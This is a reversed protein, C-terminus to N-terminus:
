EYPLKQWLQWAAEMHKALKPFLVAFLRQRDKASLQALRDAAQENAKMRREWSKFSKGEADRDFAVLFGVAKLDGPLKAIAAHRSKEWDKVKFAKLKKEADERKLM